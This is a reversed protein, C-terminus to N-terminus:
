LIVAEVMKENIDVNTELAIAFVDNSHPVGVVATGNASAILRDKKRVSGIVRVPVRGKLAIYTGGELESNMMFAPKESVVGIARDGWQSATVEKEGGVSVVTGVPYEADALYKEALDAYRASTATGNFFTASTNGGGDRAMITNGVNTDTATRHGSNYLLTNAGTAVGSLSAAITGASFDGTSNRAVVTNGTNTPTANVSLTIDATLTGGGFLFDGANVTRLTTNSSQTVSGVFFKSTNSLVVNGSVITVDSSVSLTSQLNTAGVTTLTNSLSAAGTLTTNGSVVVNGSINATGTVTLSADPSTNNIGVRLASPNVFLTSTGISSNTSGTVALTNGNIVDATLTNTITANASTLTQSVNASGQVYFAVTTAAANVAVRNNTFDIVLTNSNFAVNGGTFSATNAVTVQGNFTTNSNFTSLTGSATLNGGLSTNGVVNATTTVILGRRVRFDQINAM